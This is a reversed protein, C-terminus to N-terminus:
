IEMVTIEKKNIKNQIEPVAFSQITEEESILNLYGTPMYETDYQCSIIARRNNYIVCISTEMENIKYM